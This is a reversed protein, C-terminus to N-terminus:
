IKLYRTAVYGFILIMVLGFWWGVIFLSLLFVSLLGIEPPTLEEM